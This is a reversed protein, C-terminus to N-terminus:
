RVGPLIYLNLISDLFANPYLTFKEFSTKINALFIGFVGSAGVVETFELMLTVIAQYCGISPPKGIM